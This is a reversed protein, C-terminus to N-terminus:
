LQAEPFHDLTSKTIPPLKKNILYVQKFIAQKLEKYEPVKKLATLYARTVEEPIDKLDVQYKIAQNIQISIISDAIFSGLRKDELHM